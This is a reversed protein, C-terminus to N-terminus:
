AAGHRQWVALLGDVRVLRRDEDDPSAHDGVLTGWQYHPLDQFSHWDGGWACGHRKFVAAVAPWWSAGVDWRMTQHIVDVALGFGHWSHVNDTAHTVISGPATRGKAYYAQALANTRYTEYVVAKLGLATCEGLAARVADAFKPALFDLSSQVVAASPLAPVVIPTDDGASM